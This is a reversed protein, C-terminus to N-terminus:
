SHSHSLSVDVLKDGQVHVERDRIQRMLSLFSSQQFKESRDHKVNDLLQGATRALEDAENRERGEEEDRQSEDLIRDSGIRMEEFPHMEQLDQAVNIPTQPAQQASQEASLAEFAREMAEQDLNEQIQHEELRKQGTMPSSVNQHDAVNSGFPAFASYDRQQSRLAIQPQAHQRMFEQHWGGPASQQTPAERRFQAQPVPSARAQNLNLRQFDTAWSPARNDAHSRTEPSQFAFPQPPFLRGDLRGAQFAEFEADLIGANPGPLSRFGQFISRLFHFNVSSM